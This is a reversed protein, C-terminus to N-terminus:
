QKIMDVYENIGVRIKGTFTRRVTYLADGQEIKPNTKGDFSAGIPKDHFRMYKTVSDYKWKGQYTYISGNNSIIKTIYSDEQIELTEVTGDLYNAAYKGLLDIEHIKKFFCGHNFASLVVLFVAVKINSFFTKMTSKKHTGDMQFNAIRQADM